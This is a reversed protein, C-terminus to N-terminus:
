WPFGSLFWLGQFIVYVSLYLSCVFIIFLLQLYWLLLWLSYISRCVICHGFTQPYWLPIWFNYISPCAIFHGVMQLYCIPLWFGYISACIICHSFLVVRCRPSSLDELLSVLDQESLPVRRTGSLCVNADDSLSIANHMLICLYICSVNNFGHDRVSCIAVSCRKSASITDSM